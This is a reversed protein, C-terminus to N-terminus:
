CCLGTVCVLLWLGAAVSWCCLGAACVLLVSWYFLDAACVLLVSWCGCVLLVSWCPSFLQVSWYCLGAPVSCCCLRTACVLLSQVVACVLLVSWCPSFLLVSWYCLGAACVLLVSWYFLGVLVLRKEAGTFTEMPGAQVELDWRFWRCLLFTELYINHFQLSVTQYSSCIYSSIKRCVKDNQLM